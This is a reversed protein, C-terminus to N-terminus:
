FDTHVGEKILFNMKKVKEYDLIDFYNHVKAILSTAVLFDTVGETLYDNINLEDVGSAIGFRKGQPLYSRIEKIKQINASQGTANGSTTPIDCAMSVEVCHSKLLNGTLNVNKSYKFALACFIETNIMLNKDLNEIASQDSQLL